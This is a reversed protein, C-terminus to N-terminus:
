QVDDPLKARERLPVEPPLRRDETPYLTVEVSSDGSPHAPDIHIVKDAREQAAKDTYGLQPYRKALKAINAYRLDRISWGECSGANEALLHELAHLETAMAFCWSMDIIKNYICHKKVLDLINGGVIVAQSKWHVKATYDYCSPQFRFSDVTTDIVNPGQAEVWAPYEDLAMKTGTIYFTCDGFEELYNDKDHAAALEALEGVLGVVMHLLNVKYPNLSEMIETPPKILTALHQKYTILDM